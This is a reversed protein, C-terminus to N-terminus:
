KNHADPYHDAVLNLVIDHELLAKLGALLFTFGGMSDLAKAVVEDESARFGWTSINVLTTNNRPTFLWEVPCPPDNWEILIRTNSEVEKVNVKASAGYMEWDWRIEKGPELRGSSKTFWFKTTIAPDVFAEFVEAVPKRILMQTKVIPANWLTM